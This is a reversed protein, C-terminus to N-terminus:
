TIDRLSKELEIQRFASMLVLCSFYKARELQDLIDDIRPLPFKDSLFKKNIQHYDIVLRWKKQESGPSSKKPFVLLSNNYEFVSPEVIGDTILKGVQKQIENV